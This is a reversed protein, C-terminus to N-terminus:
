FQKNKQYLEAKRLLGCFNACDEEHNQRKSLLNWFWSSSQTFIASIFSVEFSLWASNWHPFFNLFVLFVTCYLIDNELEVLIWNVMQAHLDTSISAMPMSTAWFIFNDPQRAFPWLETLLPIFVNKDTFLGKILCGSLKIQKARHWNLWDRCIQM